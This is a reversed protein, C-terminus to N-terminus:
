QDITVSAVVGQSTTGQASGNVLEDGFFPTCHRDNWEICLISGAAVRVNRRFVGATTKITAPYVSEQPYALSARVDSGSITGMMSKPRGEFALLLFLLVLLGAYLFGKSREM